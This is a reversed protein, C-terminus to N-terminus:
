SWVLLQPLAPNLHLALAINTLPGLALVVVEGPWRAASEIIFQAASISLPEGMDGFEQDTNGFGDNGHVFDAIREKAVGVLSTM